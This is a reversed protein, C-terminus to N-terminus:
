LKCYCICVLCVWIIDQVEAVLGVFIAESQLIRYAIRTFIWVHFVHKQFGVRLETKLTKNPGLDNKLKHKVM